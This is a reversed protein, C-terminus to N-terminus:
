ETWYFESDDEECLEAWEEDTYLLSHCNDCHYEDIWEGSEHYWGGLETCDCGCNRCPREDDDMGDIRVLNLRKRKCLEILEDYNIATFGTYTGDMNLVEYIESNFNAYVDRKM